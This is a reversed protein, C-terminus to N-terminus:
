SDLVSDTLMTPLGSRSFGDAMFVVTNGAMGVGGLEGGRDRGVEFIAGEEGERLFLTRPLMPQLQLRSSRSSSRYSEGLGGELSKLM